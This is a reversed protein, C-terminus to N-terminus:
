PVRLKIGTVNKLIYISVQKFTITLTEIKRRPPKESWKKYAEQATKAPRKTKDSVYVFHTWIKTGYFFSHYNYHQVMSSNEAGWM